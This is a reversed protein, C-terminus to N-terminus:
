LWCADNQNSYYSVRNWYCRCPLLQRLYLCLESMYKLSYENSMSQKNDSGSSNYQNSDFRL